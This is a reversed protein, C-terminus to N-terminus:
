MLHRWLLVTGVVVFAIFTMVLVYTLSSFLLLSLMGSILLVLAAYWYYTQRKFLEYGMSGFLPIISFFAIWYLAFTIWNYFSFSFLNSFVKLLLGFIFYFLFGGFFVKGLRLDTVEKPFMFNMEQEGKLQTALFLHPIKKSQIKWLSPFIFIGITLIYLLIAVLINPVETFKGGSARSVTSWPSFWFRKIGLLQVQFSFGYRYAISKMFLMKGFYLLSFFLFFSLFVGIISQSTQSFKLYSLSFLLSLIFIVSGLVEIEKQSFLLYKKELFSEYM